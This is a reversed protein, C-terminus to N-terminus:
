KTIDEQVQPTSSSTTIKSVQIDQCEMPAHTSVYPEQSDAILDSHLRPVDQININLEPQSDVHPMASTIPLSGTVASDACPLSAGAKSGQLHLSKPGSACDLALSSGLSAGSTSPPLEMMKDKSNPPTSSSIENM